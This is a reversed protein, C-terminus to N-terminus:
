RGALGKWILDLVQAVDKEVPTRRNGELRRLIAGRTLDFVAAAAAQPAVRTGGRVAKELLTLQERYPGKSDGYNACKQTYDGFAAFYLRFFDRHADFYRIKTEVFARVKDRVGAAETMREKLEAHLGALGGNLAALYIAQKSPYYLYVTGKAVGAMRAIEDVSAADFGQASFVRRAADLIERHRFEAVLQRKTTRPASSMKM